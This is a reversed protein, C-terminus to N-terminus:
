LPRSLGRSAAHLGRSWAIAEDLEAFVRTEVEPKRIWMIATLVGRMVTSDMVFATSLCRMRARAAHKEMYDAILKRQTPPVPGAKRNDLVMSYKGTRSSLLRDSEALAELREADTLQPVQQAIVVVPWRELSITIKNPLAVVKRLGVTCGSLTSAPVRALTAQLVIAV